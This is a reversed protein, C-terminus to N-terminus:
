GAGAQSARHRDGRGSRRARGPGFGSGMGGSWRSGRPTKAADRAAGEYLSKAKAKVEAAERIYGTLREPDFDVNTVTTFLAEITFIDIDRDRAGLEAARHAYMSIGKTAHLLLDQLTATTADKGCVGAKTCGTGMATQECQYCFMSM